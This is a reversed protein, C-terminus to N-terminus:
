GAKRYGNLINMRIQDTSTGMTNLIHQVTSSKATMIGLIVHSAGIHGSHQAVASRLSLELCKKAQPTFTIHGSRPQPHRGAGRRRWWHRSTPHTPPRTFAQPGFTAEVTDRVKDLDIGITALANRDLTDFLNVGPRHRADGMTQIEASVRETTVGADRLIQGAPANTDTAALLLHECGIWHHGLRRAHEQAGVVIQRAEGTFREFM